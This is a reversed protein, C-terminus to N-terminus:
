TMSARPMTLAGTAGVWGNECNPLSAICKDTAWLREGDAVERASSSPPRTGHLYALWIASGEIFACPKWLAPTCPFRVRNVSSPRTFRSCGASSTSMPTPSHWRRPSGCEPAPLCALCRRTSSAACGPRHALRGRPLWCTSSRRSVTFTRRRGSPCVASSPM